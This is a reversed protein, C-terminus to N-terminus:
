VWFVKRLATHRFQDSRSSEFRRGGAGSVADRNEFPRVEAMEQPAKLGWNGKQEPTESRLGLAPRNREPLSPIAFALGIENLPSITRQTLMPSALAMDGASARVSVDVASHRKGRRRCKRLLLINKIDGSFDSFQM